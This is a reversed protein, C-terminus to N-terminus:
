RLARYADEFVKKTKMKKRVIEHYRREAEKIWLAEVHEEESEELSSLLKEAITARSSIPLGLLKVALEKEGTSM